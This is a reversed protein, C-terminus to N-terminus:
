NERILHVIPVKGFKSLPNNAYNNPMHHILARSDVVKEDIRFGLFNRSFANGPPSAFTLGQAAKERINWRGFDPSSSPGFLHEEALERDLLYMGQYPTPLNLYLYYDSKCVIPLESLRFSKPCDTAYRKQDIAAVEFRLFSPIAGYGRLDERASLWYEFNGPSIELDDELYLFHSVQRDNIFISRFIPFHCWTLLYPHGLLEPAKITLNCGTAVDLIRQHDREDVSNTIVFVEADDIFKFINLTRSLFGLRSADFHFTIAVALKGINM